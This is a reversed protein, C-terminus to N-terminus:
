IEKLDPLHQWAEGFAHFFARHTLEEDGFGTREFM